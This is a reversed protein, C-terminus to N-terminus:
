SALSVYGAFISGLLGEGGPLTGSWPEFRSWKVQLLTAGHRM